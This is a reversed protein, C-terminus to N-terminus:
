NSPNNQNLIRLFFDTTYSQLKKRDHGIGNVLIFRTNSNVSKYLAESNPWRSQPDNGFLTDVLDASEKEWGDTFDLSDNNDASGMVFLQPVQVYTISDFPMGILTELDGVGAPYPLLNNNYKKLPAIPWGGPSGIAAALIRDPHLMTFRNAFMGSASFGQILFKPNSHISDQKLFARAEDIMAILQLDTRALDKRGTTLVDRDLAHTYIHWDTGPRIFAPVLLVVDLDNAIKYREFGTWWADKKHVAPDDSTIGSNNPQVLFTVAKGSAALKKAGPSIYVYFGAYYGKGANAPYYSVNLFYPGVFLTIATSGLLLLGTLILLIKKTMM